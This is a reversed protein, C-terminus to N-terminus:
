GFQACSADYHQHASAQEELHRRLGDMGDNWASGLHRRVVLRDIVPGLPGFRVEYNFTAQLRTGTEDDSLVFRALGTRIPPANEIAFAIVQEPEWEVVSEVMWGSPHMYCRRRAGLGRREDSICEAAKIAPNWRSVGELDALAEWALYRPAGIVINTRILEM